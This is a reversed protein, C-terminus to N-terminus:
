FRSDHLCLAEPRRRSNLASPASAAEDNMLMFRTHTHKRQPM